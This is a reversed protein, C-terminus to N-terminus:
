CHPHFSSFSNLSNQLYFLCSQHSFSFLSHFSLSFTLSGSSVLLSSPPVVQQTYVSSLTTYIIYYIKEGLYNGGNKSFLWAKILRGDPWEGKLSWCHLSSRLVLNGRLGAQGTNWPVWWPSQPWTKGKKGRRMAPLPALFSYGKRKGQYETLKEKWRKQRSFDAREPLTPQETM